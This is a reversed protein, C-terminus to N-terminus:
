EDIKWDLMYTYGRRPYHIIKTYVRRTNDLEVLEEEAYKGNVKFPVRKGNSDLVILKVDTLKMNTAPEISMELIKTKYRTKSKIYTARRLTDQLNSIEYQVNFSENKKYISGTEYEFTTMDQMRNFSTIEKGDHRTVKAQINDGNWAYGQTISHFDKKASKCQLDVNYTISNTESYIYNVKRIDITFAERAPNFFYSIAKIWVNNSRNFWREILLLIIIAVTILTVSLFIQLVSCHLTIMVGAIALDFSVISLILLM